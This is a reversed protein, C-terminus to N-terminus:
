SNLPLAQEPVAGCHPSSPERSNLRVLLQGVKVDLIHGVREDYGGARLRQVPQRVRSKESSIRAPKQDRRLYGLVVHEGGGSGGIFAPLDRPRRGLRHHLDTM